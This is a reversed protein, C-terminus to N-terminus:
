MGCSFTNLMTGLMYYASLVISAIRVSEWINDSKILVRNTENGPQGKRGAGNVDPKMEGRNQVSVWPVEGLGM